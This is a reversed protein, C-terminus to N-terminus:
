QGETEMRFRNFAAEDILLFLYFTGAVVLHSSVEFELMPPGTESLLSANLLHHLSCTAVYAIDQDKKYRTFLFSGRLRNHFFRSAKLYDINEWM